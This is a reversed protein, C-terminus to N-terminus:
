LRRSPSKICLPIFEHQVDPGVPSPSWITSVKPTTTSSARKSNLSFWICAVTTSADCSAIISMFAEVGGCKVRPLDFFVVEGKFQAFHLFEDGRRHRRCSRFPRCWHSRRASASGRFSQGFCGGRSGLVTLEGLRGFM